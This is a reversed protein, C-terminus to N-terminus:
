TLDEYDLGMGIGFGANAANQGQLAVIDNANTAKGKSFVRAKMDEWANSKDEAANDLDIGKLGALFKKEAYDLERKSGLTIILEPMSLSTELHDYDKWIGLLFVEAELKALDMTEWSSESDVAQEQVTQEVQQNIKIGASIDLIEYMAGLDIVDELQDITKIEPRYQKMTVLTCELLKVISDDDNESYKVLEFKDMFERLYKIKLPTVYITEGDMLM